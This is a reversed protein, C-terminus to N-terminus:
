RGRSVMFSRGYEYLPLVASAIRETGCSLICTSFDAVRCEVSNKDKPDAPAVYTLSTDGSPEIQLVLMQGTLDTAPVLGDKDSFRGLVYGFRDGSPHVEIRVTETTVVSKGFFLELCAEEYHDISKLAAELGGGFVNEGAEGTILELRHKRLSFIMAAAEAAAEDVSLARADTRDPLLRPFERVSATQAGTRVEPSPVSAPAAHGEDGALAISAGEISWTSRDSLPARVGLYKQAYRAYPGAVLEAHAVVLDVAITSRPESFVMVGNESWVGTRAIKVSQASVASICSVFAAFILFRKM